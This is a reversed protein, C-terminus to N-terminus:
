IVAQHEDIHKKRFHKSLTFLFILLMVHLCSSEWKLNTKYKLIFHMREATVKSLYVFIFIKDANCQVVRNLRSLDKILKIESNNDAM